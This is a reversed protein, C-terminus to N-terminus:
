KHKKIKEYQMKMEVANKSSIDHQSFKAENYISKVSDLAEYQDIQIKAVNSLQSATMYPKFIQKLKMRLQFRSYIYMIQERVTEDKRLLRNFLNSLANNKKKKEMHYIKEKQLEINGDERKIHYAKLNKYLKVVEIVVFILILVAAIKPVISNGESTVRKQLEEPVKYQNINSEGAGPKYFFAVMKEILAILGLGFIRFLVDALKSIIFSIPLYMYYFLRVILTAALNTSALLGVAIISFNTITGKKNRIKNTYNRAERLTIITFILFLIYFRYIWYVNSFRASPAIIGLPLLIFIATRMRDKYVDYNVDEEDQKELFMIVITNFATRILFPELPLLFFNVVAIIVSPFGVAISRRKEKVKLYQMFLTSSVMFLYIIFDMKERLLIGAALSYCIFIFVLFTATYITKVQRYWSM